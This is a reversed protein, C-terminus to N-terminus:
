GGAARRSDEGRSDERGLMRWAKGICWRGGYRLPWFLLSLFAFFAMGLLFGDAQDVLILNIMNRLVGALGGDSLVWGTLWNSIDFFAAYSGKPDELRWIYIGLAATGTFSRAWM